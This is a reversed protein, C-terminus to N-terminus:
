ADAAAQITLLYILLVAAALVIWLTSGFLDHAPGLGPLGQVAIAFARGITAALCFTLAPLRYRLNVASMVCIVGAVLFLIPGLVPDTASDGVMAPRPRTVIYTLSLLALLVPWARLALWEIRTRTLPSM